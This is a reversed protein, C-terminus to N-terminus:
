YLCNPATCSTNTEEKFTGTFSLTNLFFLGNFDVRNILFMKLSNLLPTFSLKMQAFLSIIGYQIIVHILSGDLM